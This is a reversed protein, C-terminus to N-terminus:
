FQFTHNNTYGPTQLIVGFPNELLFISRSSFLRTSIIALTILSPLSSTPVSLINEKQAETNLKHMTLSQFQFSIVFYNRKKRKTLKVVAEAKENQTNGRTHEAESM